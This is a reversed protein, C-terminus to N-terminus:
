LGSNFRRRWSESDTINLNNLWEDSVTDQLLESENNNAPQIGSSSMSLKLHDIMFTIKVVIISRVLYDLAYTQQESLRNVGFLQDAHQLVPTVKKSIEQQIETLTGDKRAGWVGYVIFVISETLLTRYYCSFIDNTITEIEHELKQAIVNLPEPSKKRRKGFVFALLNAMVEISRHALKLIITCGKNLETHQSKPPTLCYFGNHM